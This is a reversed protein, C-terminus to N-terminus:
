PHALFYYNTGSHFQDLFEQRSLSPKHALWNEMVSIKLGCGVVLLEHVDEPGHGYYDAGGSGHEFVIYPRYRTLTQMAGRFFLVEGGEIDVKVFHIPLDSSIFNDLTDTNVQISQIAEGDRDYRRKKLGSYAPNSTVYQFESFGVNDSLASCCIHVNEHSLYREKLETCFVPIPEFGYHQGDPAHDLMRKLIDGQHCGVDICNSHRELVKDMIAFTQRDYVVNLPTEEATDDSEKITQQPRRFPRFLNWM